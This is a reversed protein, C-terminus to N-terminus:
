KAVIHAPRKLFKYSQRQLKIQNTELLRTQSQNKISNEGTSQTCGVQTLPLTDQSPQSERTLWVQPAEKLIHNSTEKVARHPRDQNERALWAQQSKRLNTVWEGKDAHACNAIGCPWLRYYLLISYIPIPPAPPPTTTEVRNINCAIPCKPTKTVGVEQSRM